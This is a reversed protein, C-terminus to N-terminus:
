PKSRHLALDQPSCCHLVPGNPNAAICRWIRLAAATCCQVRLHIVLDQPSCYYLAPGKPNAAPKFSALLMKLIFPVDRMESDILIMTEVGHCVREAGIIYLLGEM